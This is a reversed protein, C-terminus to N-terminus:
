STSGSSSGSSSGRPMPKWWAYALVSLGLLFSLVGAWGAVVPLIPACGDLCYAGPELPPPLDLSPPASSPFEELFSTWNGHLASSIYFATIMMQVLLSGGSIAFLLLSLLLRRDRRTVAKSTQTM